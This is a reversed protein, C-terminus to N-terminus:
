KKKGQEADKKAKSKSTKPKEDKATEKEHKESKPAKAAKAKKPKEEDHDHHEHDDHGEEVVAADLLMALTKERKAAECFYEKDDESLTAKMEELSKQSQEAMKAIEVDIEEETPTIGEKEEIASLVLDTKVRQEAQPRYQEQMMEMTQGTYQLFTEINMGQYMLRMQFDRILREVARDIMPEPIELTANEVVQQIVDNEFAEKTHKDADEQLKARIDAKFDALTDFESVDKAFEDDLEPLEKVQIGNIKVHFVADKGALEESHYEAPFTVNIDGEEGIKMGVLQEEFGPIFQGSGITLQQGEATGGDFKEGDVSGSYDLNVQDDDQVARDEVDIQRAVKEREQDLRRDVDDETVPHAHKHVKVGKYEGLEVEPRVYVEVSFILEKGTGIQEIDSISPQAVPDFLKDDLAKQYVDPFVADFADDYFVGEGYMNEILKRPAKGKRFGPVNIRTRNKLYAKQMGQEFTAADVEFRAKIKNKELQEVSVSM